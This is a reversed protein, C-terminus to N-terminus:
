ALVVSRSASEMESAGRVIAVEVVVLAPTVVKPLQDDLRWSFPLPVVRDGARGVGVEYATGSRKVIEAVCWVAQVERVEQAVERDRSAFALLCTVRREASLMTTLSAVKIVARLM